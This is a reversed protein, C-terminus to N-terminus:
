ILAVFWGPHTLRCELVRWDKGNEHRVIQFAERDAPDVEETTDTWAEVRSVADGFHDHVRNAFALAQAISAVLPGIERRVFSSALNDRVVRFRWTGNMDPLM